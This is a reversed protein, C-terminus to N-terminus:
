ACKLTGTCCMYNSNAEELVIFINVSSWRKFDWYIQVHALHLSEFNMSTLIYTLYMLTQLVCKMEMLIKEHACPIKWKMQMSHDCNQQFLSSQNRNFFLFQRYHPISSIHCFSFYIFVSTLKWTFLYRKKINLSTLILGM